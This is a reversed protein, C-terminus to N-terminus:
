CVWEGDEWCRMVTTRGSGDVMIFFVHGGKSRDKLIDILQPNTIQGVEGVSQHEGLIEIPPGYQEEAQEQQAHITVPLFILCAVVFSILKWGKFFRDITLEVSMVSSGSFIEYKRNM